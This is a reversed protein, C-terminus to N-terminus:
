RVDGNDKMKSDEYPGAWRRYFELAVAFLTGLIFVVTIYKPRLKFQAWLIKSFSYNIAGVDYDEAKLAEGLADIKSDLRVRMEEKIYPM